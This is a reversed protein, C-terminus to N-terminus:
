GFHNEFFVIPDPKRDPTFPGTLTKIALRLHRSVLKISALYIMDGFAPHGAIVTVM